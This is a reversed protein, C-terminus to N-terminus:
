KNVLENQIDDLSKGLSLKINIVNLPIGHRKSFEEKTVLENGVEHKKNILTGLKEVEYTTLNKNKIYDRVLSTKMNFMISLENITCYEGNFEYINQSYENIKNDISELIQFADDTYTNFVVGVKQGTDTDDCSSNRVQGSVIDGIFEDTLKISNFNNVLDLIIPSTGINNYSLFRGLQQYYIIHSETQRLMLGGDIDKLHIGENLKDVVFLLKISDNSSDKFYYFGDDNVENHFELLEIERHPFVSKFSEGIIAKYEEILSITSCFVVLKVSEKDKLPEFSKYITNNFGESREWDIRKEDLFERLSYKDEDNINRSKEIDSSRKNIENDLSYVGINYVPKPLVGMNIADSLSINGVRNGDFLIDVMDYNLTQDVRRPTASAGLIKANPNLDSLETFARGWFEAGTHHMEDAVIVSYKGRFQEMNNNKFESLLKQYTIFDSDGVKYEDKFQNIIKSSPAIIISRGDISKIVESIISSKGTGTAQQIVVKREGSEFLAIIEDYTNKNWPKLEM